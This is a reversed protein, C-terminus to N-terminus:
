TIYNILSNQTSVVYNKNSDEEKLGENIQGFFNKFYKYNNKQGGQDNQSMIVLNDVILNTKILSNKLLDLNKEILKKVEDSAYIFIGLKGDLMTLKLRLNGMFDYNFDIDFEISEGNKILQAKDVITKAIDEINVVQKLFDVISNQGYQNIIRNFDILFYNNAVDIKLFNREAYDIKSIAKNESRGEPKKFDYKGKIFEKNNKNYINNDEENTNINDIVSEKGYSTDNYFFYNFYPLIDISERKKKLEQKEFYKKALMFENKFLNEDVARSTNKSNNKDAIYNISINNSDETM